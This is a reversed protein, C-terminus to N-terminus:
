PRKRLSDKWDGYYYFNPAVKCSRTTRSWTIVDITPKTEFWHAEMNDIDLAWWNAWSPAQSWDPQWEGKGKRKEAEAQMAEALEFAEYALGDRTPKELQMPNIGELMKLLIEHARDEITKM